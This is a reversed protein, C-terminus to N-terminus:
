PMAASDLQVDVTTPIISINGSEIEAINITATPQLQYIGSEMLNGVDVIVRIEEPRLENLVLQPGNVLVTVVDPTVTAEFGTPMSIIEVPVSEFQRSSQVTDIGISVTIRQGTIPVINDSPLDVPVSVDFDDTYVALDIPATLITGPLEELEDPPGTVFITEPSYEIDATLTYGEPPEGLINPTVRVERVDRRQEINVTVGVIEPSITLNDVADDDPDYLVPRLDVEFSERQDTLDVEVRAAAVRSVADAPGSVLVQTINTSPIGPEVSAPIEGTTSVELPILREQRQQLEVTIQSPSITVVSAQRQDSIVAELPVTQRGFIATESLDAIIQIDDSALQEFESEPARVIVFARNTPNNTILVNEDVQIQIPIRESLGRQTIPNSDIAATLWVICALMLSVSFWITNEIIQKRRPLRLRM